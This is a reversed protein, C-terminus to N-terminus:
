ENGRPLGGPTYHVQVSLIQSSDSGTGAWHEVQGGIGLRFGPIIEYGVVARADTLFSAAFPAGPAKAFGFVLPYLGLSGEAHWKGRGPRWALTGVGGLAHRTQEVDIDTGTFRIDANNPATNQWRYGLAAAAELDTGFPFIAGARAGATWTSPSFAPNQERPLGALEVPTQWHAGEAEILWPKLRYRLAIRYDNNALGAYNAGGTEVAQRRLRYAFNIGTNLPALDAPSSGIPQLAAVPESPLFGSVASLEFRLDRGDGVPMTRGEYGVGSVTLSAQGTKDLLVRFTGDPKTFVSTVSGGQQVLMGALPQGTAADVVVGNAVTPIAATQPAPAQVTAQAILAAAIPVVFQPM